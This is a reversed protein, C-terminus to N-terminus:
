MTSPLWSALAPFLVVIAAAACLVGIWLITEKFLTTVPVGAVDSMIYLVVAEPPTVQAVGIMITMLIYFMYPDVNLAQVVPMFVPMTVVVLVAAELATGLVVLALMALFTFTLPGLGASVIMTTFTQPFQTLTLVKGIIMASAILFFINATSGVAQSLGKLITRWNLERYVFIGVILTVITAVAAAETCTFVGTYIGGLIIVPMALAPLAMFFSECVEKLTARRSRPYGKRIALFIEVICFLVATLIGPLVGSVFLKGVSMGTVLGYIIASNSPPILIGITTANTILAGSHARPYGFEVMQPIMMSGIAVACAPHSGSLAGFITATLIVTLGMGGPLHGVLSHSFHILRNSVGGVSMLSGALLFFPIAVLSGNDVSDFFMHAIGSFPMGMVFLMVICGGLAFPVFIPFGATVMALFIIIGVVLWFIM